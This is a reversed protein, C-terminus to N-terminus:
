MPRWSLSHDGTPRPQVSTSPVYPAEHLHGDQGDAVRCAAEVTEEGEQVRVPDTLERVDPGDRPGPAMGLEIAVRERVGQPLLAEAVDVEGPEPAEATM